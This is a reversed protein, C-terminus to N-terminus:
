FLFMKYKKNKFINENPLKEKKRLDINIKSRNEKWRIITQKIQLNLNKKKSSEQIKANMKKKLICKSFANFAIKELTQVIQFPAELDTWIPVM